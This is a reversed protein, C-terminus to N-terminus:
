SNLSKAQMFDWFLEMQESPNALISSSDFTFIDDYIVTKLIFIFTFFIRPGNKQEKPLSLSMFCM